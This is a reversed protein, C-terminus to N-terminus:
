LIDFMKRDSQKDKREEKNKLYNLGAEISDSINMKNPKKVSTTNEYSMPPPVEVGKKRKDTIPNNKHVKEIDYEFQIPVSKYEKPKESKLKKTTFYLTNSDQPIRAEYSSPPAFEHVRKARQKENWENQTLM